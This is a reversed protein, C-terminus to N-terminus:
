GGGREFQISYVHGAKVRLSASSGAGPHLRISQGGDRVERIRSGTPPRLVHVGDVTPRLTATGPLGDNWKVDVELGGRARLGTVEGHDWAKPLAPLFQLEGAESQILMEAIAATGGFNGDIQFPPHNDFLNPLTSRALLATLNEILRRAM